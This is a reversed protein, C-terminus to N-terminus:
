SSLSPRRKVRMRNERYPNRQYEGDATVSDLGMDMEIMAIEGSLVQQAFHLPETQILVTGGATLDRHIVGIFTRQALSRRADPM